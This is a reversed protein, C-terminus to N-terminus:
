DQLSLHRMLYQLFAQKQETLMMKSSSKGDREDTDPFLMGLVGLGLVAIAVTKLIEHKGEINHIDFVM